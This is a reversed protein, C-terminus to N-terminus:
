KQPVLRISEGKRRRAIIRGNKYFITITIGLFVATKKTYM